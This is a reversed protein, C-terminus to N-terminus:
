LKGAVRDQSNTIPECRFQRSLAPYLRAFEFLGGSPRYRGRNDRKGAVRARPCPSARHRLRAPNTPSRRHLRSPFPLSLCAARAAERLSVAVRMQSHIFERAREMRRFLEDRSSQKGAPVRAIGSTIEEYFRLLARSLSLFDEEFGSTRSMNSSQGAPTYGPFSRFRRCKVSRSTWYPVSPHPPISPWVSSSDASCSPAEPPFPRQRISICPRWMATTSPSAPALIWLSSAATSSGLWPAGSLPKSPSHGRFNDVRHTRSEAHLILNDRGFAAGYRRM